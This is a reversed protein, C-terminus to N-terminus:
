LRGVTPDVGHPCAPLDGTSVSQGAVGRRHVDEWAPNVSRACHVFTREANPLLRADSQQAAHLALSVKAPTCGTNCNSAAAIATSM